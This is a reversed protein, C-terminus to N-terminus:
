PDFAEVLVICSATDAKIRMTNGSGTTGTGTGYDKGLERSLRVAYVEGPLLEFLPQFKAGDWIGVTVFNTPDVNMMRCVGGLGTLATLNVDTGGVTATFSGPTPGIPEATNLNALFATPQSIYKLSGKTVQLSSTIRIENSM